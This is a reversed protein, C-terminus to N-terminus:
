KHHAKALNEWDRKPEFGVNEILATLVSILFPRSSTKVDNLVVDGCEFCIELKNLLGNDAYFYITHHPQFMCFSYLGSGKSNLSMTIAKLLYTQWSSLDKTRYIIDNPILSRGSEPDFLDYQNSHETVVIRDAKSILTNLSKIFEEDQATSIDKELAANNGDCGSITSIALFLIIILKLMLKFHLARSGRLPM